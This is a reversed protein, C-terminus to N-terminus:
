GAGPIHLTSRLSAGWFKAFELLIIRIYARDAWWQSLGSADPVVPYTRLVAEPIAAEFELQARPMHYNATVLILSRFQNKRAWSAGEQANGFTNRALYDLDICCAFLNDHGPWRRKLDDKTSHVNVGSILLRRGKGEALLLLGDQIRDAGGTLVVIGDAPEPEAVERPAIQRVFLAFGIFVALLGLLIVRYAVRALQRSPRLTQEPTDGAPDSM